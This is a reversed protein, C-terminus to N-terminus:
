QCRRVLNRIAQVVIAPDDLHVNHDANVAFMHTSDSSLAALEDQLQCWTAWEPWQRRKASGASLVTLPLTGLDQPHGQPRALLLIERVVARRQKSSLSVARAAGWYEPVTERTLSAAGLGDALGFRAALRYAGLIRARRRAARKLDYWTNGPGLRRAQDEHSSDVLLMGAVDGPYRSQFRRAIIGGMSHGAIIYPPSIAAAKLLAHLDDAMADITLPGRPPPDSWGIGARDYVCVTTGTPTARQVRVWELVNSALAPVIVVAPSGEGRVLIHM